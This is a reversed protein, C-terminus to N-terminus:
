GVHVGFQDAVQRGVQALQTKLVQRDDLGLTRVPFVEVAAADPLHGLVQTKVPLGPIPDDIHGLVGGLLPLEPRMQVPM